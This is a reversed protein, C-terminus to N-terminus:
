RNETRETLTIFGFRNFIRTAEKGQLYAIFKESGAGAKGAKILAVSYSIHPASNTPVEFAVRVERSLATDTKYVVAADVNGSEVAALAGRVNETPIIKNTLEKWLGLNELYKRAYIGAPVTNPEAIAIRKLKILDRPSSLLADSEKNVAVVLTNSLISRRTGGKLLGRTELSDMKEEDASFFLDARAGEQIQRALISSAGFNFFIKDDSMKAYGTSVEKLADTLSAAAFVLLEAGRTLAIGPLLMGMFLLRLLMDGPWRVPGKM